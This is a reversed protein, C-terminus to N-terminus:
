EINEMVILDVGVMIGKLVGFGHEKYQEFRYKYDSEYLELGYPKSIIYNQLYPNQDTAEMDGNLGNNQNYNYEMEEGDITTKVKYVDKTLAIDVDERLELGLNIHKLYETEPKENNQAGGFPYLWLYNTSNADNKNSPVNIFSRATMLRSNDEMLQSTHETKDFVLENTKNFGLDYAVNYSIYEYKTNFQERVDTFEAANSDIM